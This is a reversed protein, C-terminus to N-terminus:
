PTPIAAIAQGALGGWRHAHIEVARLEYPIKAHRPIEQAWLRVLSREYPEIAGGAGDWEAFVRAYQLAHTQEHVLSDIAEALPAQVNRDSLAIVHYKPLYCALAGPIMKPMHAMAAPEFDFYTAMLAAVRDYLHDLLELNGARGEHDLWWATGKRAPKWRAKAYTFLPEQQLTWLLAELKPEYVYSLLRDYRVGPWIAEGPAWRPFQPPADDQRRPKPLLKREGPALPSPRPGISGM